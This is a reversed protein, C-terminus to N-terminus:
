FLLQALEGFLITYITFGIVEPVLTRTVYERHFALLSWPVEVEVDQAPVGGATRYSEWCYSLYFQDGPDM